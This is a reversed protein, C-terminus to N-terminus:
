IRRCMGNSIIRVQVYKQYTNQKHGNLGKELGQQDIKVWDVSIHDIFGWALGQTAKIQLRLLRESNIKNRVFDSIHRDVPCGGWTFHYRLTSSPRLIQLTRFNKEGERFSKGLDATRDAHHNMNLFCLNPTLKAYLPNQKIDNGNANLQHSNVKFFIRNNHADIYDKRWRGYKVSEIMSDEKPIETWQKAVKEM